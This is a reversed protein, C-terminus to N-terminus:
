SSDDGKLKAADILKRYKPDLDKLSYQSKAREIIYADDYISSFTVLLQGYQRLLYYESKALNYEYGPTEFLRISSVDDLFDSWWKTVPWRSKNSDTSDDVFTLYHKCIGKLVVGVDTGLLEHAAKTARDDRLQMELRIWHRDKFGREAAKDYFRFRIDSAGSGIYICLGEIDADQNDSWQIDSYKSPSIYLRDKVHFAIQHLDLVGTHDDYALDLRTINFSYRRGKKERIKKTLTFFTHFLFNWDNRGHSEFSRCGTGSMDICIGMDDRCKTPDPMLNPDDAGYLINIGGFYLRAPYGNRFRLQDDWPIHSMGLLDIVDDTTLGYCVVTLWDVLAINNSYQSVSTDFPQKVM